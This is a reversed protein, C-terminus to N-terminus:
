KRFPKLFGDIVTLALKTHYTLKALDEVSGTEWNRVDAMVRLKEEWPALVYKQFEENEKLSEVYRERLTAQAELSNRKEDEQFRKGADRKVIKAM